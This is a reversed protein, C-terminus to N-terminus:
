HRSLNRRVPRRYSDPSAASPSLNQTVDTNDSCPETAAELIRLTLEAKQLTSDVPIHHVSLRM